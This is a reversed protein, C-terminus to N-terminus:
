FTKKLFYILIGCSVSVNISNMNNQLPISVLYDSKKILSDKIGIHENGM